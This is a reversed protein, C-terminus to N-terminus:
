PFCIEAEGNSLAKFFPTMARGSVDEPHSTLGDKVAQFGNLTIVPIGGFWLTFINGHIKALKMLLDRHFQFNMQACNGVVPRPIPGPPLRRGTGTAVESFT